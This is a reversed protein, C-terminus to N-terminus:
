IRYPDYTLGQHKKTLEDMSYTWHTFIANDLDLNSAELLLRFLGMHRFDKKIYIFHIVQEENMRETTLFGFIVDDDEKLAAVYTKTNPRNLINTVVMHHWKYYISHKIRKAFNSTYKYTHLWSKMIFELDTPQFLRIEVDDLM